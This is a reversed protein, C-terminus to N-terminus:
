CSVCFHLGIIDKAMNKSLLPHSLEEPGWSLEKPPNDERPGKGLHWEESISNVLRLTKLTESLKKIHDVAGNGVLIETAGFDKDAM